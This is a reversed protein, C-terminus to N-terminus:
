LIHRILYFIWSYLTLNKMWFIIFMCKMAVSHMIIKCGLIVSSECVSRSIHLHYPCKFPLFIHLTSLFINRDYTTLINFVFSKKINISLLRKGSFISIGQNQGLSLCQRTNTQKMGSHKLLIWATTSPILVKVESSSVSKKSSKFSFELLLIHKSFFIWYLM